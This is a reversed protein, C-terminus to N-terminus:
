AGAARLMGAAVADMLADFHPRDFASGSTLWDSHGPDTASARYHGLVDLHDGLGAWVVTGWLQSRLPVVGDSAHADLAAGFARGVLAETREGAWPTDDDPARQAQCPYRPDHRGTFGHLMAFLAGSLARWPHGLQRVWGGPSPQPTMSVTSQYVVGPRDEVGAQFLDMAEPTLQLISGQDFKIGDLYDRVERSRVEDVHRLLAEVSRDLLGRELGRVREGRGVLGVLASAAALPPAGLSLGTFTLASLAYLIQQGNVTAFFKALPTGHHPSNMTTVSRLRGVWGRAPDPLGLRACPSAALRADLGGTSHGLLHIPGDDEACTDRVRAALALARRRVSATPMVEVGYLTVAEGAQHFRVELARRVHAFYDHSALQGFGFMGPSLYVRHLM